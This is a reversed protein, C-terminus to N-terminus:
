IITVKLMNQFIFYFDVWFKFFFTLQKQLDPKLLIKQGILIQFNLNLILLLTEQDDDIYQRHYIKIVQDLLYFHHKKLLLLSLDHLIGLSNLLETPIICPSITDSLM